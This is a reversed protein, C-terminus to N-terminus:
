VQFKVNPMRKTTLYKALMREIHATLNKVNHTRKTILYKAATKLSQVNLNKALMMM